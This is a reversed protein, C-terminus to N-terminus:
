FKSLIKCSKELFYYVGGFLISKFILGNLNLNGDINFLFPMNIFMIKRLFPLQFIFFIIALLIPIQYENYADDIMDNQQKNNNYQDIISQNTIDSNIYDPQNSNYNPIFDSQIHPDNIINNANMPIDRSPLQTVGTNSAKQLGTVIQNITSEDLNVGHSTPNNNPDNCQQNSSEKENIVLNVNRPPDENLDTRLDSINTTESMDITLISQYNYNRM